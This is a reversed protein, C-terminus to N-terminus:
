ITTSAVDDVGTDECGVCRYWFEFRGFQQYDYSRHFINQTIRHHELINNELHTVEM